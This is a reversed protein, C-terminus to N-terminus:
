NFLDVYEKFTYLRGRESGSLEVLINLKELAGILNYATQTAVNLVEIVEQADILPKTFLYNILRKANVRKRGLSEIQSEVDSKLKLIKEFTLIGNDATEIIGVLFFKIWQELDNSSRVKMLNDFYLTRHRELFDSLYLIPRKLLGKEVLYIPILLRGTRGNGDLFPHITEFQYHIIGIRLLEPMSVEDNHAFKEIDNMLDDILSHNPPVFIADQITAGGIWNQSRRFAGPSKHEGRGSSLLIKHTERILRSSFPLENLAEIAFNQAKIYQKVEEWDDRKEVRIDKKAM